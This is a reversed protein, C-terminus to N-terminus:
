SFQISSVKLPDFSENKSDMWAKYSLLVGRAVIVKEAAQQIGLVSTINEGIIDEYNSILDNYFRYTKNRNEV